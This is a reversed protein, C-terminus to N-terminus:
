GSHVIWTEILWDSEPKNVVGHVAAAAMSLIRERTRARERIEARAPWPRWVQNLITQNGGITHVKGYNEGCSVRLTRLADFFLHRLTAARITVIIRVSAIRLNAAKESTKKV